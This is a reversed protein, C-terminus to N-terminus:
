LCCVLVPCLVVTSMTGNSNANHETSQLVICVPRAHHEHMMAHLMLDTHKCRGNVQHQMAGAHALLNASAVAAPPTCALQMHHFYEVAFQVAVLGQTSTVQNSSRCSLHKSGLYTCGFLPNEAAPYTAAQSAMTTVPGTVTRQYM